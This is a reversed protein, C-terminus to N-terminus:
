GVDPGSAEVPPPETTVLEEGVSGDVVRWGDDFFFQGARRAPDQIRYIVAGPSGAREVVYLWYAAGLETATDFQRRSLGVGRAGWVDATSKVEIYRMEGTTDVSEIDYGPHEHSMETPQRGSRREAEMVLAVGAPDTDDPDDDTHRVTDAVSDAGPQVYSRLRAQPRRPRGDGHSRSGGNGSGSAAGESRFEPSTVAEASEGPASDGDNDTSPRYLSPDYGADPDPPAFGLSGAGLPQPATPEDSLRPYGLEDLAASAEAETKAALVDKIGSAPGGAELGPFLAYALERAIAQWSRHGDQGAVYLAGEERDFLALFPRPSTEAHRRGGFLRLTFQVVLGDVQRYALRDLAGRDIEDELATQAEMVRLLQRRRSAIREQLSADPRPNRCEVMRIEAAQALDTVGAARMARWSAPPREIVNKSLLPGFDAALGARDEFYLWAPKELVRKQNPVVNVERLEALSAPDVVESDLARNLMRWCASVVAFQQETLTNHGADAAVERLVAIADDHDPAEKVGLRDLLAAHQRMDASLTQRYPHLEHDGWFVQDARYARGDLLLCPEGRLQDIAGHDHHQSLYTYLATNVDLGNSVLYRLHKVVLLPEPQSRVGLYTLYESIQQQELAPLDLFRAQSAFLYASFESYVETPKHWRGRDNRAPLWAVERLTGLRAWTPSDKSLRGLYSLIAQIRSVTADAPPDASLELIRDRLDDVRPVDRAGLWRLAERMAEQHEGTLQVWSQDDGLTTRVLDADFYADMAPLWGHTTDAIPLAALRERISLEDRIEGLRNAILALIARRVDDDLEAGRQEVARPLHELAYTAFTLEPVGLELLFDRLGSLADLDVLSALGLPDDFGGPIALEALPQLSTGSPYLALNSLRTRLEGDLEDGHHAFWRLIAAVDVQGERHANTLVELELGELFEVAVAPSLRPCLSALRPCDSLAEGDAFEMQRLPGLQDAITDDAVYAESPPLLGAGSREPIVPIGSVADRAPTGGRNAALLEEFTARLRALAHPAQLGVPLDHMAVRGQLGLRAFASAIHSAALQQIFRGREPLSAAFPRLDEHLPKVGLALLDAAAAREGDSVLFVVDNLRHWQEDAGFALKGGTLTGSIEAWFASLATETEAALKASAAVLEWLRVPGITAALQDLSAAAAMAAARIAARNWDSQFDGEFIIKKRDTTPFFDANIHVPLAIRHQTPLGQFLLGEVSGELPVAVQVDASRKDEIRGRGARVRINPAEAAFSGNLMLWRYVQGSSVTITVTDEDLVREVLVRPQGAHHLAVSELKRLFVMAPALADEIDAEVQAIAARNMAEAHLRQRLPSSPDRAWPLVFRTGAVHDQECGTCVIIRKAEEQDDRITWHRGASIVQPADTVQYVAVFGIGFAGTVGEQNRKDGGAVLRFRHFDCLRGREARWPCERLDQQGCDTFTGDNEVVLADDGVDFVMHRAGEADDANQILENALTRFGTLDRLIADILGLFDSGRSLFEPEAATV